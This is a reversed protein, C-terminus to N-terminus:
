EIDFAQLLSSLIPDMGPNCSGQLWFVSSIASRYGKITFLALKCSSFLFELFDTLQQLSAKLPNIQKSRCCSDYVQWKCDYISASSARVTQHAVAQSSQQEKEILEMNVFSGTQHPQPTGRFLAVEPTRTISTDGLFLGSAVQAANCAM